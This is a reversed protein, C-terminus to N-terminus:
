RPKNRSARQTVATRYISLAKRGVSPWSLEREFYARVFSRRASVDSEAVQEIAQALTRADGPLFLRGLEGNNTIARFPPIDTVVPIVGFSLAELLSFCAVERRSGLVFIDAGAYLAPLRRQPLRGRLHVRDRLFPSSSIRAKVEGLLVDDGYVMTLHAEPLAALEFGDLVTLPDKNSDLRGVWLLAPRGPLPLAENAEISWTGVDTSSEVIDYITDTSAMIGAGILPVAQERATFLFGDAASLGLRYLVRSPWTRASQLSFGGHDQVLITTGKDLRLRLHRVVMPFVLGDLHVVNPALHKLIRAISSGWFWRSPAAVGGDAVFHYDILGRRILADRRFRQVVTVKDAGAAKVADAWGEPAHYADLLADPSDVAPDYAAVAIAINLKDTM